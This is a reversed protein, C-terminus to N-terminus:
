PGAPRHGVKERSGAALHRVYLVLYWRDAAPIVRNLVPEHGTGSLMRRYLEGDGLDRVAPALLDAPAPKYSEGVPGHGRGDAGHCSACYYAYYTRGRDLNGASPELPDRMTAAQRTTPVSPVPDRVPVVGDPLPPFVTQFSRIHPQSKMQPGLFVLYAWVGMALLAAPVMIRILVKM